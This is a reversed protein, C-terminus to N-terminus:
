PKKFTKAFNTRTLHQYVLCWSLTAVHGAVAKLAVTAEVRNASIAKPTAQIRHGLRHPLDHSLWTINTYCYYVMGRIEM